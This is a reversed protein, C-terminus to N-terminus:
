SNFVFAAAQNLQKEHLYFYEGSAHVGNIHCWEHARREADLAMAQIPWTGEAYKQFNIGFIVAIHNGNLEQLRREKDSTVGIKVLLSGIPASGNDRFQESRCIVMYTHIAPEPPIYPSVPERQGNLELEVMDHQLIEGVERDSLKFLQGLPLDRAPKHDVLTSIALPPRMIRWARKLEFTPGSVNEIPPNSYNGHAHHGSGIQTIGILRAGNSIPANGSVSASFNEPQCFHGILIPRELALRNIRAIDKSDFLGALLNNEPFSKRTIHGYFNKFDAREKSPKLEFVDISTWDYKFVAKQEAHIDLDRGLLDRM